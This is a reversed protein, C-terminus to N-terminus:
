WLGSWYETISPVGWGPRLAYICYIFSKARFDDYIRCAFSKADPERDATSNFAFCSHKPGPLSARHAQSFLLAVNMASTGPFVTALPTRLSLQDFHRNLYLQGPFKPQLLM